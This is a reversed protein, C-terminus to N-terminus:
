YANKRAVLTRLLVKFDLSLSWNELYYLDYKIRDEISTNGRLGNVQAWGTMGPKYMHRWMYRGIDEKFKEVFHPREPRPGVLSMDGRFVNWLQPLEDLNWRRLFGGVPTVRPDNERTFVPGTGVEADVRMTRLKYINFQRGKEGCREQAYFVPGRSTCRVALAALAVVPSAVVMLIVSGVADEIRKLVRPWFHDLPWPKVGLLPIDDLSQVDMSVTLLRFLDPVMNFDVLNRECLILIEMIRNHPLGHGALMLQDVQSSEICFKLDELGGRIDEARISPDPPQEDTRLFGVVVARLMPERAIARRLHAAVSDTGVILVRNRSGSHRALNWEIRFMAYRELVLFASITAAALLIVLRSFEVGDPLENQVAFALVVTLVVGIMVGRVMRPIKNVFSGIQPRIYLGLSRNVALFLLTAVTAGIAYLAYYYDPPAHRIPFWGSDFRIWTALMFGGFVALADMIGAALSLLVDASHRKRM